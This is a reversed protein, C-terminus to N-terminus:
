DLPAASAESSGPTAATAHAESAAAAKRRQKDEYMRRDAVRELKSIEEGDDPRVSLGCSFPVTSMDGQAQLLLRHADDVPIRFLVVFEDGGRRYVRGDLGIRRSFDRAFSKLYEGGM